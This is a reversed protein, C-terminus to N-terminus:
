RGGFKSWDYGAGGVWAYIVACAYPDFRAGDQDKIFAGLPIEISEGIAPGLCSAKYAKRSPPKGNVYISITRGEIDRAGVNRVWLTTADWGMTVSMARPPASTSGSDGIISLIFIVACIILAFMCGCGATKNPVPGGCHPCCSARKSVAMGCDRCQFMTRKKM